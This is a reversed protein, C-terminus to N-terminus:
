EHHTSPHSKEGGEHHHYRHPSHAHKAHGLQLCNILSGFLGGLVILSSNRVTIIKVINSVKPGMSGFAFIMAVALGGSLLGLLINAGLNDPNVSFLTTILGFSVLLGFFILLGEKVHTGTIVLVMTAICIAMLILVIPLKKM